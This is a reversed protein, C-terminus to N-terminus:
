DNGNFAFDLFEAMHLIGVDDLSAVAISAGLKMGSGHHSHSDFVALCLKRPDFAIAVSFHSPIVLVGTHVTGAGVARDSINLLDQKLQDYDWMGFDGGRGITVYMDSCASEVAGYVSLFRRCGAVDYRKNTAKKLVHLM